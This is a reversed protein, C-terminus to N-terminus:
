KKIRKEDECKHFEVRYERELEFLYQFKLVKKEKLYEFVVDNYEEIKKEYYDSPLLIGVNYPTFGYKTSVEKCCENTIGDIYRNILYLKGVTIHKRATEANIALGNVTLRISDKRGTCRIKFSGRSISSEGMM